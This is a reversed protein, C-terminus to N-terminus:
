QEKTLAQGKSILEHGPYEKELKSIAAKAETKKGQDKFIKAIQFLSEPALTSKPWQTYIKSFYVLADDYNKKKYAVEGLKYRCQNHKGPSFASDQIISECLAKAEDLKGSKIQNEVLSIKSQFDKSDGKNDNKQNKAEKESESEKEKDKEREKEKNKMKNKKDKKSNPSTSSIHDLGQTVEQMYATQIKLKEQLETITDNQKKIELKLSEMETKQGTLLQTIQGVQGDSLQNKQHVIEELKGNLQNIQDQLDKQKSTMEAVHVRSQQLEQDVQSVRQERMIEESTQFCSSLACLSFVLGIRRFIKQM